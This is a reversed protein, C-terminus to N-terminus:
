ISYYATFGFISKRRDVKVLSLYAEADFYGRTLLEM